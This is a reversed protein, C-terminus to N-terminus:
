KEDVKGRAATKKWNKQFIIIIKKKKKSADCREYRTWWCDLFFFFSSFVREGLELETEQANCSPSLLMHNSNPAPGYVTRKM